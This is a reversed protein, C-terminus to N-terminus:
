HPILRGKLAPTEIVGCHMVGEFPGSTKVDAKALISALVIKMSLM